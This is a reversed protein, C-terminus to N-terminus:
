QVDGCKRKALHCAAYHTDTIKIECPFESECVPEGYKAHLECRDCFTCGNPRDKPDPVRGPISYLRKHPLAASPRSKMLGITYPHRPDGFLEDTSGREVIRGSYMVVAKDATNRVVGLDHTILIVAANLRKKLDDLLGLIQARITVDLATTPEDAIILSPEGAIAMACCVRQRMGGSLQHPYMAAVRRPENIGVDSLLKVARIYAAKKKLATHVTLVEGIQDAIRHVPNLATMPEQFIMSIQAGRLSRMTSESASAIDIIGSEACFEASGGLIGATRKDLLGMLALSTVSKGCGSEGVIALTEGRRVDFTVNEVARIPGNDTDFGVTLGNVKLIARDEM